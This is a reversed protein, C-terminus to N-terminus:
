VRCSFAKYINSISIRTPNVNAIFLHIFQSIDTDMFLIVIKLNKSFFYIFYTIYFLHSKHTRRIRLIQNLKYSSEVLILSLNISQTCMPSCLTIAHDSTTKEYSYISCADRRLNNILGILSISSHKYVVVGAIVM